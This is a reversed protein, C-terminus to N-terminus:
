QKPKKLNKRRYEKGIMRKPPRDDVTVPPANAPTSHTSTSGHRSQRPGEEIPASTATTGIATAPTTTTTTTPGISRRSLFNVIDSAMKWASELTCLEPALDMWRM